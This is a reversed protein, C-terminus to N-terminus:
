ATGGMREVEIEIARVMRMKFPNVYFSGDTESDDSNEGIRIFLYDSCDLKKFLERFFMVEPYEEPEHDYWKCLTWVYAEAGSEDQRYIDRTDLFNAVAKRTLFDAKNREEVLRQAGRKSLVIGVDSRYGM